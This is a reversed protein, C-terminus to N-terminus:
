TQDSILLTVEENSNSTDESNKEESKKDITQTNSSIYMIFIQYEEFSELLDYTVIPVIISFFEMANSPIILNLIPLHIILQLQDM